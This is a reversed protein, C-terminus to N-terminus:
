REILIRVVDAVHRAKAVGTAQRVMIDLERAANGREVFAGTTAKIALQRALDEISRVEAEDYAVTDIIRNVAPLEKGVDAKTRRLFAYQERLYTGLAKPDSLKGTHTLYERSFDGYDGLVADNIFGMINFIEAGYGYIPTATLGIRWAAEKSLM